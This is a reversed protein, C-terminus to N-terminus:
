LRSKNDYAFKLLSHSGHLNLKASINTRHNEVTRHSIGLDDAIEKSTQDAAIMQLIRREAATLLDLGKAEKALAASQNHRTLLFNSISSSIFPQGAVVSRISQLLDEAANEKLVYGLVGADMAENFTEEDRYMTLLVIRTPLKRERVKLSVQLGDLGPMEVDLVAAQPKLEQIKDLAATGDTVEALLRLGPASEIVERLGKRFIPHDDAILVTIAKHM